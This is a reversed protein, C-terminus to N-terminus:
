ERGALGRCGRRASLPGRDDRGAERRAFGASHGSHGPSGALLRRSSKTDATAPRATAGGLIRRHSLRPRRGPARLSPRSPRPDPGPYDIKKIGKSWLFPSVVSEGVDFSGAPLGGGDILMEGPRPIRRPHFGGPRRRPVHIQPRQSASPFPYLILILSSSRRLRTRRRGRVRKFRPPLLLLLLFLFTAPSPSARVADPDPLLPVALRRASPDLGHLGQDPLGLVAAARGPSRTPGLFAVPLFVYGAAM